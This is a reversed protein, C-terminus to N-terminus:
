RCRALIRKFHMRELGSARAARSLNGGHRQLQGLVYARDFRAIWEAKLEPHPRALDVEWRDDAPYTAPRSVVSDGEIVGIRRPEPDFQPTEGPASLALAREIVNRLERVNGRWPHALLRSWTEETIGALLRDAAAADGQVARRILHEVLLAIDETRERLPPVRVHVVALRYYLDDRFARRNVEAALDRNTAAILRVDVRIPQRGGVRRVSRAELARLLKPQLELPLEGLEDLFLTGGQAEELSGIRREVAGTFAGREHGFLESELLNAPVAACDVVVFPGLARNSAGHIATAILEKGTGSEGEVLITADTRAARDLTAFLERIRLSRGVLPGFRDGPAAEIEVEETGPDFALEVEGVRIVSGARLYLDQARYGDVFTGNKSGLDRLRYGIEDAEIEFHFRSVSDDELVVDNGPRSGVRVIPTTAHYVQSKAPATIRFRYTRLRRADGAAGEIVRTSRTLDTHPASM